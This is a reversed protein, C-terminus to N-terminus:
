KITEHFIPLIDYKFLDYIGTPLRLPDVAIITISGNDTNKACGLLAKTLFSTRNSIEGVVGSKLYINNNSKAYQSIENIVVVVNNGKEAVRKMREFFLNTGNIVEEDSKNFPINNISVSSGFPLKEIMANLYLTEVVVNTNNEKILRAIEETERYSDKSPSVYYRGGFKAMKIDNCGVQIDGKLPMPQLEDFNINSQKDLRCVEIAIEPYNERVKRSKVRIKEGNLLQLQKIYTPNVFVDNMHGTFGSVHLVGFGGEKIEVVGEREFTKITDSDSYDAYNVNVMFKLKDQESDYNSYESFSQLESQNPLIFDVVDFNDSNNRVPRGKKTSNSFPMSEGNMIKMIEDIIEEKKKSTPANVGMKRALDRLEHIRLQQLDSIKEDM